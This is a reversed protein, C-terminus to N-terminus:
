RPFAFVAASLFDENDDGKPLWKAVRREKQTLGDVGRAEARRENPTSESCVKFETSSDIEGPQDRM